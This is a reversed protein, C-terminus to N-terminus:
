SPFIRLTTTNSARCIHCGKSVGACSDCLALHGCPTSAYTSSEEMCVVCTPDFATALRKEMVEMAQQKEISEVHCQRLNTRLKENETHLALELLKHKSSEQLRRHEIVTALSATDRLHWDSEGRHKADAEVAQSLKLVTEELKNTLEASRMEEVNLKNNAKALETEFSAIIHDSCRYKANKIKAYNGKADAVAGGFTALEHMLACFHPDQHRQFTTALASCAASTKLLNDCAGLLRRFAISSM